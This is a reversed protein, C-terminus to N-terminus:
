RGRSSHRRTRTVPNPQDHKITLASPVARLAASLSASPLLSRLAALRHDAASALTGRAVFAERTRAALSRRLDQDRILWDLAAHWASPNNSVLQGAPGNALSGRYAPVDSALTALGLAAFELTRRPSTCRNFPTDALPALGIHWGPSSRCLWDVFGPYSRIANATPRIADLGSPLTPPRTRGLVNIVIRDEYDAKLRVLAPQIMAFDPDSPGSVMCLIRIPDDWWPTPPPPALWIREDLRTELIKADPRLVSLRDALSQTALWVTDAVTLMRRVSEAAQPDDSAIDLLDDDLDFVLKAGSQNTHARLRVATEPDPIADRQTVFIDAPTDFVTDTDVLLLEFDGGIAPHDLPQLLRIYANPTFQGDDLREPLIAIRSKTRPAAPAQPQAPPVLYRTDYFTTRPAARPVPPPPRRNALCARVDDFTALWDQTTADTDVLWTNPRGALREPFAGLKNAVIPLGTEIATTLTYGYTEPATSPFWFVHPNAARLLAHLDQEQYPGTEDILERAPEPFSAELHGILHIALSGAEAAEAVSAVIRAGKHNALVGLLAIRLPRARDKPVTVPWNGPKHDEHPAVIAKDGVGYRALRTKVDESPCIVREAEIFQWDQERRWSLIDRAHHSSFEAICRNCGASDPEQCYLGEPWRLLNVQPCIAYYDHVTIDFPVGLRHILRRIDMGVNMLHHIHVRSVGASRLVTVLDDVRDPPLTLAARNPEAPVALTVGRETGALQFIHAQNAYRAALGNIHRRIGGGLKHCVMLIVPLGSRSALAAIVAFRAPDAVGPPRDHDALPGFGAQDRTAPSPTAATDQDRWAFSDCALRHDWGSATARRCFDAEAGPAEILDGIARLADRRIYLCCGTATPIQASRGANITRCTAELESPPHGFPSIDYGGVPANNSLPSVTAIRPAAWAHAALRRLSDASIETDGHVLIVDHTEAVEIGRRICTPVRLRHRERILHIQGESALEALWASLAPESTADDFVIVRALPFTRGALVPALCRKAQQLNALVPVIVDVFVGTPIRLPPQGSPLFERIDVPKETPYGRVQGVRLHYLVPNFAADPHQGVYWAADFRPHPSYLAAGGTRLYHTIPDLGSAAVDPYRKEYWALDFFRNPDRKTSPGYEQFHAVPDLNAAAVDAYRRLYWDPEVLSALLPGIDLPSPSKPPM